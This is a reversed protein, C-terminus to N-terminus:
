VTSTAGCGISEPVTSTGFGCLWRCAAGSALVSVVASLAVVLLVSACGAVVTFVSVLAVVCSCVTVLSGVVCGVSV